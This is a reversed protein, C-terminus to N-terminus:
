LDQGDDYVKQAKEVDAMRLNSWDILSQLAALLEQGLPTISYSVEVQARHIVNRLVLGDREHSRLTQSLMKPSIGAIQRKLEHYRLASKGLLLLVLVSWKDGVRDLLKRTPCDAEFLDWTVESHDPISKTGEQM